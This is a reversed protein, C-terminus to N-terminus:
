SWTDEGCDGYRERRERDVCGTKFSSHGLCRHSTMLTARMGDAGKATDVLTVEELREVIKGYTPEEDDGETMWAALAAKTPIVLLGIPYVHNVRTTNAFVHGDRDRLEM